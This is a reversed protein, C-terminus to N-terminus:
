QRRRYAWAMMAKGGSDAAVIDITETYILSPGSDYINFVYDTGIVADSPATLTAYELAFTTLYGNNSVGILATAVVSGLSDKLEWTVPVDGTITGFVLQGGQPLQRNSMSNRRALDAMSPPGYALEKLPDEPEWKVVYTPQIARSRPVLVFVALPLLLSALILCINIKKM